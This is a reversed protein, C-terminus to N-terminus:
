VVSKRDIKMLEQYKKANIIPSSLINGIFFVALVIGFVAIGWKMSKIVNIDLTVGEKGYEKYEKKLKRYLIYVNVVIILFMLFEWFGASHINFAPLKVYYYVFAIILAIVVLLIRRMVKRFGSNKM